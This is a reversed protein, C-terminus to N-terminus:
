SCWVYEAPISSSKRSDSLHCTVPPNLTSRKFFCIPPALVERFGMPPIRNVGAGSSLRWRARDRLDRNGEM